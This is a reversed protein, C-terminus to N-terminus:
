LISFQMLDKMLVSESDFSKNDVTPHNTFYEEINKMDNRIGLNQDQLHNKLVLKFEKANARKM